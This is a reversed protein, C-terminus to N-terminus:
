LMDWSNEKMLEPILIESAMRMEKSIAKSGFIRLYKVIPPRGYWLEYPTKTHNIRIQVREGNIGSTRTPGCLDKHIIEM